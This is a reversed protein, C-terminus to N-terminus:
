PVNSHTTSKSEPNGGTKDGRQGNGERNLGASGARGFSLIGERHLGNLGCGNGHGIAGDDVALVEFAAEDDLVDLDAIAVLYLGASGDHGVVV